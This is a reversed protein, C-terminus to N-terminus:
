QTVRTPFSYYRFPFGPHLSQVERLTDVMVMITTDKLSPYASFPVIGERVITTDTIVSDTSVKMIDAHYPITDRTGKRGSGNGTGQFTGTGM